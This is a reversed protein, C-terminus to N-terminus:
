ATLLKHPEPVQLGASDLGLVSGVWRQFDPIELLVRVASNHEYVEPQLMWVVMRRQEIWKM